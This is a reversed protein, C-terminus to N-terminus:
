LFSVNLLSCTLNMYLFRTSVKTVPQVPKVFDDFDVNGQYAIEALTPVSAFGLFGPEYTPWNPAPSGNVPDKVFDAFATQFSKSLEVETATATSKNFTGFLIPVIAHYLRPPQRFFDDYFLGSCWASHCSM